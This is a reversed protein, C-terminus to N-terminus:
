FSNITRQLINLFLYIFYALRCESKFPLDFIAFIKILPSDFEGNVYKEIYFDNNNVYAELWMMNFFDYFFPLERSFEWDIYTIQQKDSKTLLTNASWLDGHLKVKPIKLQLLEENIQKPNFPLEFDDPHSGVIEAITIQSYSKKSICFSFYDFYTEFVDLMVFLLDDNEWKNKPVSIILEEMILLEQDDSWFVKPLPFFDNFYEYNSLVSKFDDKESFLTMVKNQVLDFIKKDKYGHSSGVPLYVTGSFNDIPTAKQQNIITGRFLFKKMVFVFLRIFSKGYYERQLLELTRKKTDEDDKVLYNISDDFVYAGSSMYSANAHFSKILEKKEKIYNRVKQIM